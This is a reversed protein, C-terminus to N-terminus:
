DRETAIYSERRERACMKIFILWSLDTREISIRQIFLLLFYPYSQRTFHRSKSPNRRCNVSEPLMGQIFTSFACAGVQLLTSAIQFVPHQDVLLPLCAETWSCEPLVAQNASVQASIAATLAIARRDLRLSDNVLMMREDCGERVLSM